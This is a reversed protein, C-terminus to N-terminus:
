QAFHACFSGHDTVRSGIGRYIRSNAFGGTRSDARRGWIGGIMRAVELWVSACFIAHDTRKRVSSRFRDACFPSEIATRAQFRSTLSWIRLLWGKGLGEWQVILTPDSSTM